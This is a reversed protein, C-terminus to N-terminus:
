PGRTIPATRSWGLGLRKIKGWVFFGALILVVLSGVAPEPVTAGGSAFLEIQADGLAHGELIPNAFQGINEKRTISTIGNMSDGVLDYAFTASGNFIAGIDYYQGAQLTFSLPDSVAYQLGGSAPVNVTDSFLLSGADNGPYAVDSFIVFKLQGSASPAINIAIQNISVNSAGIQLYAAIGEGSRMTTFQPTDANNFIVSGQVPLLLAQSAFIGLLLFKM